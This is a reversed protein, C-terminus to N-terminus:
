FCIDVCFYNVFRVLAFIGLPLCCFVTVCISFVLGSPPPHGLPAPQLVVLKPPQASVVVDQVLLSGRGSSLLSHINISGGQQPSNIYYYITIIVTNLCWWIHRLADNISTYLMFRSCLMKCLRAFYLNNIFSYIILRFTFTLWIVDLNVYM